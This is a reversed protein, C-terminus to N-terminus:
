YKKRPRTRLFYLAATYEKFDISKFEDWETHIIVLDAKKCAM